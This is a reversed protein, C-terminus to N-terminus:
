PIGSEKSALISAKYQAPVEGKGNVVDDDIANAKIGQRNLADLAGAVAAPVATEDKEYVYTVATAAPKVLNPLGGGDRLYVALCLAWLVVAAGELHRRM